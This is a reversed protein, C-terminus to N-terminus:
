PVPGTRHRPRLLVGPSPRSGAPGALARPPLYVAFRMPGACAASEHEYFGQAGGFCRQVSRTAFGGM